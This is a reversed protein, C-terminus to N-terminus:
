ERVEGIRDMLEARRAPTGHSSNIRLVNVGAEMMEELVSESASAPGVTAVIKTRRFRPDYKM